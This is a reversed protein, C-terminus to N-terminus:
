KNILQKFCNEIVVRNVARQEVNYRSRKETLYLYAKDEESFEDFSKKCLQFRRNDWTGTLYNAIALNFIAWFLKNSTAQDM